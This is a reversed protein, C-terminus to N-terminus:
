RLRGSIADVRFEEITVGDPMRWRIVYLPREGEELRHGVYAGGFRARLMDSVERIPRRAQRELGREQAREQAPMIWGPQVTQAAAESAGIAGILALTALFPAKAM